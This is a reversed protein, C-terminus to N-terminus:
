SMAGGNASMARQTAELEERYEDIEKALAAREMGPARALGEELLDIQSELEKIKASLDPPPVPARMADGIVGDVSERRGGDYDAESNM